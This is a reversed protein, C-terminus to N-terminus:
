LRVIERNRKPVNITHVKSRDHFTVSGIDMDGTKKLNSALTYIVRVSPQKKGEISNEKTLQAMDELVAAPIQSIDEFPKLRLYVHASSFNDVHFWVDEPFAYKILGENEYKDKGMYVVYSDDISTFYFVM